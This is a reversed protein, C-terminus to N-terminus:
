KHYPEGRLIRMCRYVQELLIVRMMQHPFTLKSFSIKEDAAKLVEQSLGLSGGILFALHSDGAVMHKELHAALSESDFQRGDIALAIVCADKPLKKLLREGEKRKIQEEEAASAQDPTKEDDVELIELKLYPSLRKAYEAIAKKWYDEKLHGIALITVKM